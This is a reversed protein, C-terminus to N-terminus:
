YRLYDTAELFVGSQTNVITKGTAHRINDEISRLDIVLVMKNFVCKSESYFRNKNICHSYVM